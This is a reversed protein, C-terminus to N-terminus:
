KAVKDLESYTKGTVSMFWKDLSGDKLGQEIFADVKAALHAHSPNFGVVNRTTEIYPKLVTIPLQYKRRMAEAWLVDEIVVDLRKAGLKKLNAEADTVHDVNWGKFKDIADNYVYGEVLGARMGNFATLSTFTKIPSDNHVVAAITWFALAKKSFTFNPVEEATAFFVIDMHNANAESVCRAYSAKTLQLEIPALAKQLLEVAFGQHKGNEEQIYPEWQEYCGKLTDADAACSLIAAAYFMLGRM